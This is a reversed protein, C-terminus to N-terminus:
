SLLWLVKVTRQPSDLITKKSEEVIFLMAKNWERDPNVTFNIQPIAKPDPDIAQQKSLDIAIM